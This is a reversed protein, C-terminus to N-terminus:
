SQHMSSSRVKHPEAVMMHCDMFVNEVDKHVSELVPPGMTINPVFHGDMVDVRCEIISDAWSYISFSLSPFNTASGHSGM